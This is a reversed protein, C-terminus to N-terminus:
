RYRAKVNYLPCLLLLCYNEKKEREKKKKAPTNSLFITAPYFLLAHVFYFNRCSFLPCTELNRM